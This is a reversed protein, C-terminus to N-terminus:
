LISSRLEPVGNISLPVLIRVLSLPRHLHQLIVSSLIDLERVIEASRLGPDLNNLCCDEGLWHTDLYMKQVM